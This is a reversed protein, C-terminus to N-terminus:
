SNVSAVRSAICGTVTDRVYVNYSAIALGVFTPSPQWTIFDISYELIHGDNGSVSTVTLTGSGPVITNIRLLSCVSGVIEAKDKVCGTVTDRVRINHHGQSVNTFTDSVQYPSGDLAYEYSGSGGSVNVVSIQGTPNEGSDVIATTFSLYQCISNISVNTSVVCGTVTDRVQLIHTMQSLGTFVPNPQYAGLDVAYEYNGSGGSVDISYIQGTPNQGSGLTSVDTITLSACINGVTVTIAKQCGTVTDRVVATYTGIGVNTFTPSPQYNAGADLSYVYTGSGGSATLAVTGTPSTNGSDTTISVLQLNSCINPVHVTLSRVCGTGNDRVSLTYTGANLNNFIPSVQYITTNLKYELNSLSSFNLVSISTIQGTPNEGSGIVSVDTVELLNCLNEIIVDNMTTVCGKVTDRVYITYNGSELATFSNSPQYTINDLSYEYNSPNGSGGTAQIIITGVPIIGSDTTIVSTIVFNNCSNEVEYVALVNCGTNMDRVTIQYTGPSLNNFINSNQFNLGDMSYRYNGSGGTVSNITISGDNGITGADVITYANIVLDCLNDVLITSVYSATCGTITDRIQVTYAGPPLQEFNTGSQWNRNVVGILSFEVPNTTGVYTTVEIIGDIAGGSGAVTVGTIGLMPCVNPVIINALTYLCRNDIDKVYITYTGASLNTLINSSYWVVGDTSYAYNGSGGTVNLEVSGVPNVGAGTVTVISVTAGCLSPVNINALSAVCGTSADRVYITHLFAGLGTLVLGSIYTINDNSISYTGSGGSVNATITGDNNSGSGTVVTSTITFLACLDTIAVNYSRQCGNIVDKIVVVYNGANLNDYVLTNTFSGGNLSTEYSGSGNIIQIEIRGNSFGSINTPTVSADFSPCLSELEIVKNSTCTPRASDRVYVTYTGATLGGFIPNSYWTTNDLSYQITGQGGAVNTIEIQGDNGLDSEGITIYTTIGFTLCEPAILAVAEPDYQNYCTILSELFNPIFIPSLVTLDRWELEGEWYMKSNKDEPINDSIFLKYNHIIGFLLGDTSLWAFGYEKPHTLIDNVLAYDTFYEDDIEYMEFKIRQAQNLLTPEACSSLTKYERDLSNKSGVIENSVLILGRQAYFCWENIDTINNFIVSCHIFILRCIGGPRLDSKCSNLRQRVLPRSCTNRCGFM